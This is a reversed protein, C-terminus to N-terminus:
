SIIDEENALVRRNSIECNRVNFTSPLTPHTCFSYALEVKHSFIYITDNVMKRMAKCMANRSYLNSHRIENTKGRFM